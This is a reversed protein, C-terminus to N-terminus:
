DEMKMGNVKDAIIDFDYLLDQRALLGAERYKREIENRLHILLKQERTRKERVKRLKGLSRQLQKRTELVLQTTGSAKEDMHTMTIILTAIKERLRSLESDREEIKDHLSKKEVQLREYDFLHLGEGLDELAKLAAEAENVRDRIKIYQLMAESLQKALQGQRNILRLTVKDSLTKGTQSNILGQGLTEEQKLLSELAMVAEEQTSNKENILQQSENEIKNKKDLFQTRIDDFVLLKKRYHLEAQGPGIYNTEGEHYTGEAKKKKFYDSLMKQFLLNKKRLQKREILLNKCLEVMENRNPVVADQHDESVEDESLEEGQLSPQSSLSEQSGKTEESKEEEDVDDSRSQQSPERQDDDAIVSAVEDGERGTILEEETRMTEPLNSEDVVEVAESDLPPVGPAETGDGSEMADAENSEGEPQLPESRGEAVVEEAKEENQADKNSESEGEGQLLTTVVQLVGDDGENAEQIVSLMGEQERSPADEETYEKGMEEVDSGHSEPVMEEVEDKGEVKETQAVTEPDEVMGVSTLQSSDNIEKAEEAM